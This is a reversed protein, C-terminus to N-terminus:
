YVKGRNGGNSYSHDSRYDYLTSKISPSPTALVLQTTASNFRSPVKHVSSEILYKGSFSESKTDGGGAYCSELNVVTGACLELNLPVTVVLKDILYSKRNKYNIGAQFRMMEDASQFYDESMYQTESLERDYFPLSSETINSLSSNVTTLRGNEIRYTKTDITDFIRTYKQSFPASVYAKNMNKSGEPFKLQDSITITEVTGQSMLTTLSTYKVRNLCDIFM